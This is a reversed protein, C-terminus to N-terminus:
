LSLELAVWACAVTGGTDRRHWRRGCPPALPHREARVAVDQCVHRMGPSVGRQKM